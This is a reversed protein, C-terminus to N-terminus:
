AGELLCLGAVSLDDSPLQGADQWSKWLKGMRRKLFEGASSRIACVEQVVSSATRACSHVGDTSVLVYAAQRLAESDASADLRWEWASASSAIDECALTQSSCDPEKASAPAALACTCISKHQGQTQERWQAFAVPHRHYNLYLPANHSYRLSQWLVQGDQGVCLAEGDGWILTRMKAGQGLVVALTAFGDSFALTDLTPEAVVLIRNQLEAVPMDFVGQTEQLVKRAALAWIRAGLDTAGGTSCGDAV